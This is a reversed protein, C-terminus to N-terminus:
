LEEDGVSVTLGVSHDILTGRDSEPKDGKLSNM